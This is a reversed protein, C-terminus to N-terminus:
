NPGQIRNFMVGGGQLLPQRAEMELNTTWASPFLNGPENNADYDTNHRLSLQTGAVGRKSLQSQMVLLDQTIQTTGGGLFVNNVARNNKEAAVRTTFQADFEALAAEVGFRPDSESIAPQQTSHVLSPTRLLTGGLDRLVTSNNLALQIA